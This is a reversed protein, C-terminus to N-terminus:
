AADFVSVALRYGEGRETAVLAAYPGLNLRLNTVHSYVSRLVGGDARGLVVKALESVAVVQPNRRALHALIESELHRLHRRGSPTVLAHGELIFPGFTLPQRLIGPGPVPLRPPNSSAGRAGARLRLQALVELLERLTDHDEPRAMPIAGNKFARAAIDSTLASSILAVAPAPDLAKLEPLLELGFCDGLKNDVLAFGCPCEPWGAFVRRAEGLSNASLPVYGCARLARSLARLAVQEDDVVLVRHEVNADV